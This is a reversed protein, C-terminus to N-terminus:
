LKQRAAEANLTEPELLSLVLANYHAQCAEKAEPESTFSPAMPTIREYSELYGVWVKDVKDVWYAGMPTEAVFCTTSREEWQLPKAKPFSNSSLDDRTSKAIAIYRELYGKFDGVTIPLEDSIEKRHLDFLRAEMEAIAEDLDEPSPKM